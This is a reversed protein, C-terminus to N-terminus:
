SIWVSNRRSLASSGWGPAGADIGGPEAVETRREHVSWPRFRPAHATLGFVPVLQVFPLGGDQLGDDGVVHLGCLRDAGGLHGAVRVISTEGAVMRASM